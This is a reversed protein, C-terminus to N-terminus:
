TATVGTAKFIRDVIWSLGSDVLFLYFGFVFCAFIVVVTTGVVEQRGPWSVKKVEIVVDRFFDRLTPWWERVPLM